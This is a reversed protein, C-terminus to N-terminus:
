LKSLPPDELQLGDLWDPVLTTMEDRKELMVWHGCDVQVIKLNPIYKSMRQVLHDPCSPDLTPQIFLVPLEPPLNVPLDKEQEYRLPGTRYYSLPGELGRNEETPTFARLYAELEEITLLDGSANIALEGKIIKRMNDGRAWGRSESLEYSSYVLKFFRLLKGHIEATSEKSAFYMMYGYDPVRRAMEDVPIFERPPLTYPVSAVAIARIREPYWACLRWTIAAGWDHGVVVVRRIGLSDLLGILDECVAKPTYSELESPQYTANYGTCDPAIVRYGKRVWPGIQYRWGYWFDPFGHILLLTPTSENANPPSEDVYHFKKTKESTTSKDAYDFCHNFSLIDLPDM